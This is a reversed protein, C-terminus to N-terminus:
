CVFSTGDSRSWESGGCETSLRLRLRKVPSADEDGKKDDFQARRKQDETAKLWERVNSAQRLKKNLNEWDESDSAAGRRQVKVDPTEGGPGGLDWGHHTNM